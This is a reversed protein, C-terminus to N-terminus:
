KAPCIVKREPVASTLTKLFSVIQRQETESMPTDCAVKSMKQVAEELTRVSGDHFYPYSLEVNRLTPVKISQSPMSSVFFEKVNKSCTGGLAPGYHCTFCQRKLFLGYGNKEDTTLAHSDGSLFRDFRSGPTLLTKEYQSIADCITDETIGQSYNKAFLRRYNVDSSVKRQVDSLGTNMEDPNKFAARVQSKLDSVRADWYLAYNYAVNLITPVNVKGRGSHTTGGESLSHCNSCSVGNSSLSNDNFLMRGITAKQEDPQFFNGSPIPRIDFEKERDKVWQILLRQEKPTLIANWHLLKYQLPPMSGGLMAQSLRTIDKETFREIGCLKSESLLFSKRGNEVNRSIIFSAVPLNRYIPYRVLDVTHCDACKNILVDSVAKFEADGALALPKRQIFLNSVALTVTTISVALLIWLSVVAVRRASM